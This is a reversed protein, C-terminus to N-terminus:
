HSNLSEREKREYELIEKQAQNLRIEERRYVEKEVTEAFIKSSDWLKNLYKQSMNRLRKKSPYISKEKLDEKTVIIVQRM